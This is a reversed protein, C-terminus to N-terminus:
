QVAWLREKFGDDSGLCMYSKMKKDVNQGHPFLEALQSKYKVIAAVKKETDVPVAIAPGVAWQSRSIAQDVTDPLASPSFGASYPMDEYLFIDPKEASQVGRFAESTIVHDVHLGVGLPCLVVGPKIV